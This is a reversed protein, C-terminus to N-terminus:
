SSDMLSQATFKKALCVQAALWCIESINESRTRLSVLRREFLHMFLTCVRIRANEEKGTALLNAIEHRMTKVQQQKKNSLLKIRGLSIGLATKSCVLGTWIGMHSLRVSIRHFLLIM